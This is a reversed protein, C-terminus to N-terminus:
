LRGADAGPVRGAGVPQGGFRCSASAMYRIKRGTGDGPRIVRKGRRPKDENEDEDGLDEGEEERDKLPQATGPAAGSRACSASQLRAERRGGRM